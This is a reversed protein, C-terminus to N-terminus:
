PAGVLELFQEESICTTGNKRAAQAKSSNSNPDAMVLYTLKKGVSKKVEAGAGTALAELESRPKQSSGTFCVSKGTLTGYIKGEIEVGYAMLRDVIQSHDKFWTWLKSAKVPGLGEVASLQEINAARMKELTDYGASTVMKITSSGCLPISLSGLLTEIPVRKRGWLTKIVKQASKVGMRDIAALQDETLKYLDPVETVLAGEVLKDLLTEGWEKIDMGVVYRKIRGVAQASCSATNTCVLYEGEM